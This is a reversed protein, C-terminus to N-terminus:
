SHKEILADVSKKGNESLSRCDCRDAEYDCNNDNDHFDQLDRWFEVSHGHYQPKLLSDVEILGYKCLGPVAETSEKYIDPNNLCRGVACMLGEDTLYVCSDLKEDYARGNELIYDVTEQIIEKVNM